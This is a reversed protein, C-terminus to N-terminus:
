LCYSGRFVLSHGGSFNNSPLDNKERSFDNMGKQPVFIPKEPTKYARKCDLICIKLTALVVKNPDLTLCFFRWWPGLSNQCRPALSSPLIFNVGQLLLNPVDKWVPSILCSVIYRDHVSWKWPNVRTSGLFIITKLSSLHFRQKMKPPTHKKRWIEPSFINWRPYIAKFAGVKGGPREFSWHCSKSKNLQHNNPPTKFFCLVQEWAIIEWLSRHNRKLFWRVQNHNRWLSNTHVDGGGMWGDM